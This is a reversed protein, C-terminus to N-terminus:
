TRGNGRTQEKLDSQEKEMEDRTQRLAEFETGQPNMHELKKSINSIGRGLVGIGMSLGADLAKGAMTSKVFVIYVRILFIIAILILLKLWTPTSEILEDFSFKSSSKDTAARKESKNADIFGRPGSLSVNVVSNGSVVPSIQTQPAEPYRIRFEGEATAESASKKGTKVKTDKKFQTLLRSPGCGVGIFLLIILLWKM